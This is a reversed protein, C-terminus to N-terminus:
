SSSRLRDRGDSQHSLAPVTEQLWGCASADIRSRHSSVWFELDRNPSALSPRLESRREGAHPTFHSCPFTVNRPSFPQATGHEMRVRQGLRAIGSVGLSRDGRTQWRESRPLNPIHTPQGTWCCLWCRKRAKGEVQYTSLAFDLPCKRLVHRGCVMNFAQPRQRWM